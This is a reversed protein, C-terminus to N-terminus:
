GPMMWVTKPVAYQMWKAAIINFGVIAHVISLTALIIGAVPIITDRINVANRQVKYIKGSLSGFMAILKQNQNAVTSMSSTLDPIDNELLAKIETLQEGLERTEARYKDAYAGIRQGINANFRNTAFEDSLYSPTDRSREIDLIARNLDNNTEILSNKVVILESLNAKAVKSADFEIARVRRLIAAIESAADHNTKMKRVIERQIEDETEAGEGGTSNLVIM